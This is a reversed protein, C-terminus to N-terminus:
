IKMLILTQDDEVQQHHYELVKQYLEDALLQSPQSLNMSKLHHILYQVSDVENDRREIIGDTYFLLIDDKMVPISDTEYELEESIGLLPGNTKLEIVENAAPRYLITPEHGASSYFFRSSEKHYFGLFMTIFSYESMYKSFFHNINSLIEHPQRNTEMAFKMMTMQISAPIGKGCVDAIGVMVGEETERSSYFDGNLIRFPVSVVGLDISEPTTGSSSLLSNQIASAVSLEYEITKQEKQLKELEQKESTDIFTLVTGVRKDEELIPRTFYEVPFSTGDKRWFLEGAVSRTKGDQVSLHIPCDEQPYLSGDAHTHHVFSHIKRGILEEERYGLKECASKNIFTIKGELDTGYIGEFVTNLLNSYRKSLNEMEEFPRRASILYVVKFIYIYGLLKYFHASLNFIDTQKQFHTFMFSSFVIFLAAIALNAKETFGTNKAFFIYKCFIVIHVLMFIYEFTKRIKSPGSSSYATPWLDSFVYLFIVMFITYILALIWSIQKADRVNMKRDIGFAMYLFVISETIGEVITYWRALSLNVPVVSSLADMLFLLHFVEFTGITFFASSFVIARLSPAYNYFILGQLAITFAFFISAIKIVMHAPTYINSITESWSAPFSGAATIFFVLTMLLPFLSKKIINNDM